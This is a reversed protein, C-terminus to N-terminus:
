IVNVVAQLIFGVCLIGLGLMGIRKDRNGRSIWVLYRVALGPLQMLLTFGILALFGFGFAKVLPIFSNMPPASIHFKPVANGVYLKGIFLLRIEIILFVLSFVGAVSVLRARATELDKLQEASLLPSTTISNHAFYVLCDERIESDVQCNAAASVHETAVNNRVRYQTRPSLFLISRAWRIGRIIMRAVARTNWVMPISLLIAGVLDCILGILTLWHKLDM